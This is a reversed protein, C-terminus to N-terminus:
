FNGPCSVRKSHNDKKGKRLSCMLAEYSGIIVTDEACHQIAHTCMEKAHDPFDIKVKLSLM